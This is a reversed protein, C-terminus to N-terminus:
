RDWKAILFLIQHHFFRFLFSVLASKAKECFTLAPLYNLRLVTSKSTYEQTGLVSLKGVSCKLIETVSNDKDFGVYGTQMTVM